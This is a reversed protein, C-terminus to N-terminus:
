ADNRNPALARAAVAKRKRLRVAQKITWRTTEGSDDFEIPVYNFVWYWGRTDKWPTYAYLIDTRKDEYYLYMHRGPKLDFDVLTGDEYCLAGQAKAMMKAMIENAKDMAYQEFDKM